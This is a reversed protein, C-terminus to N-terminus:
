EPQCIALIDETVRDVAEISEERLSLRAQLAIPEINALGHGLCRLTKNKRQECEFVFIPTTSAEIPAESIVIRSGVRAGVMCLAGKTVPNDVSSTSLYTNFGTILGNEDEVLTWAMETLEQTPGSDYQIVFPAPARTVWLGTMTRRGRNTENKRAEKENEGGSALATSTGLTLVALSLLLLLSFSCSRDFKSPCTHAHM